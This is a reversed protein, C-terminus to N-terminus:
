RKEMQVGTFRTITDASVAKVRHNLGGGVSLYLM